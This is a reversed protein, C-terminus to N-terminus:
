VMSSPLGVQASTPQPLGPMAGTEAGVPPPVAAGEPPAAGAGPDAAATPAPVFMAPFGELQMAKTAFTPNKEAKRTMLDEIM